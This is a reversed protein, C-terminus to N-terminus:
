FFKSAGSFLSAGSFFHFGGGEFGHHRGHTCGYCAVFDYLLKTISTAQWVAHLTPVSHHHTRLTQLAFLSQAGSVVTLDIHDLMKLDRLSGQKFKSCNWFLYESLGLLNKGKPTDWTVAPITHTLSAAVLLIPRCDDAYNDTLSGPDSLRLDAVAIIFAVPGLAVHSVNYTHLM